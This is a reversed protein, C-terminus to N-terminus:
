ETVVVVVEYVQRMVRLTSIHMIVVSSPAMSTFPREWGKPPGASWFRRVDGLPLHDTESDTAVFPLFDPDDVPLRLAVRLHSLLRAGELFSLRGSLMDTAVSVVRQGQHRQFESSTSQLM